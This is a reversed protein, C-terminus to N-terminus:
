VARRASYYQPIHEIVTLGCRFKIELETQSIVTAYSIIQRIIDEDFESLESEMSELIDNLEHLLKLTADNQKENFLAQRKARLESIRKNLGNSELCFDEKELIGNKVLETLVYNQRSLEAIEKDIVKLKYETGNSKSLMTELRIILQKVIIERNRYLKNVCDIFTQCVDSEDLAYTNSCKRGSNAECCKWVVKNRQQMRRFSHGCDNCRLMKSLRHGGQKYKKINRSNYLTLIAERDERTFIAPLCNSVYYQPQSGDNQLRRPPNEYTTITKQLLADGVNRENLLAYKVTSLTWPRGYRYPIGNNNLYDTIKQFGWGSLYLGKILVLIQAESENIIEKGSNILCYGYTASTGLFEGKKMRQQYSWRMNNSLSISEEQAQVGSLALLIESSMTATDIGEKEFKVSVGYASLQRVTDLCDVTNRAFRSVSKTIIRDIKGKQCDAILRNFEARNETKRGSIGDDAYIGVLECDPLKAIMDNYYGVQSIFSHEQDESDTSVRCYAAIRTKKKEPVLINGIPEIKTVKFESTQLM